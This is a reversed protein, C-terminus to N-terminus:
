ELRGLLVEAMGSRAYSPLSLYERYALSQWDGQARLMEVDGTALYYSTAAGRRFSSWGFRRYDECALVLAGKFVIDVRQRTMPVFVGQSLCVFVPSHPATDLCLRHWEGLNAALCLSKKPLYPVFFSLVREQCQITKTKTLSVEVGNRCFKVDGWSLHDKVRFEQIRGAPIVSALRSFTVFLFLFLTRLPSGFPVQSALRSLLVPHIPLKKNVPRSAFRRAGRIVEALPFFESPTPLGFGHELHARRIASLHNRITGISRRCVVVSYAVYRVLTEAKAPTASLGFLCCFDGFSRCIGAYNFRTGEALSLSRVVVTLEDLATPNGGSM